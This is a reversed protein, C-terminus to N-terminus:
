PNKTTKKQWDGKKHTSNRWAWIWHWAQKCSNFIPQCQSTILIAFITCRSLINTERSPYYGRDDDEDIATSLRLSKCPQRRWWRPRYTHLSACPSGQLCTVSFTRGLCSPQSRGVSASRPLDSLCTSNIQNVFLSLRTRDHRDLAVIASRQSTVPVDNVFLVRCRHPVFIEFRSSKMKAVYWVKEIEHKVSKFYYSLVSLFNNVNISSESWLGNVGCTKLTELM